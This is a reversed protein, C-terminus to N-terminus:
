HGVAHLVAEVVQPWIRSKPDILEFHGTGELRVLNVPDGLQEARRFFNDSQSFPVTDDLTGHILAQKAGSPLLEIPSGADYRGPHTEPTGGILEKVVGDGLKEKWAARLDSVGALSITSDVRAKPGSYLASDELVRHRCALWLALHGGASFGLVTCRSTDTRDNSALTKLVHEVGNEVDQFTGPWGGGADGVRRYELNCTVIGRRTLDSCLQGMHDLNYASRWFGGHIM